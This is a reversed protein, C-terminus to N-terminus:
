AGDGIKLWRELDTARAYDGYGAVEDLGALSGRDRLTTVARRVASLAAFLPLHWYLVIRVGTGEWEERTYDPQREASDRDAACAILPLPVARAIREYEALTWFDGLMLAGAGHDAYRKLRDIVGAIGESAKADTRAILMFEQTRRSAAATDLIAAFDAAPVVEKGDLLGCRKPFTQDELHIASVGAQEFLRVTRAVNVAGGFGTDADSVVPRDVAHVINGARRAMETATTLGLDPFGLDSAENGLGTLYVFPFGAEAIVRASLADYAGPVQLTGTGSLLDTFTM